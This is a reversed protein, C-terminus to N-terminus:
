FDDIAAIDTVVILRAVPVLFEEAAAREHNPGPTPTGALTMLRTLCM